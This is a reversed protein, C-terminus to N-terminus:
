KEMWYEGEAQQENRGAKLDVLATGRLIGRIKAFKGTGGSLRYVQTGVTRKSGDPNATTHATADFQSFIKDGNELVWVAYGGGRGNGDIFDTSARTWMEVVKVGDFMPPNSPFTRHLEYVRVQHGPVDGVEIALQQTFKANAEPARWAIKQREQAWGETPGLATLGAAVALAVLLAVGDHVYAKM